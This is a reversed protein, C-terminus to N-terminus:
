VGPRAARAFWARLLDPDIGFARQLLDVPAPGTPVEVRGDPRLVELTAPREGYRRIEDGERRAIRLASARGRHFSAVWAQRFSDPPAPVPLLSYVARAPEGLAQLRLTLTSGCRAELAVRGLADHVVAGPRCPVPEPLLLSPDYLWPGAEDYALVVAHGEETVLNHGLACHAHAGLGRLLDCLAYALSFSTGGLGHRVLERLVVDTGRPWASPDGPARQVALQSSLNEYPAAALFRRYAVGLRERGGLRALDGAELALLKLRHRTLADVGHAM